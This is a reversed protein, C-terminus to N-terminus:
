NIENHKLIDFTMTYSSIRTTMIEIIYHWKSNPGHNLIEILLFFVLQKLVPNIYTKPTPKYKM